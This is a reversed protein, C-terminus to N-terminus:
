FPAVHIPAPALGAQYREYMQIHASEIHRAFLEIFRFLSMVRAIPHRLVTFITCWAQWPAIMHFPVHGTLCALDGPRESLLRGIEGPTSEDISTLRVLRNQGFINRLTSIFSTGATKPIHLFMVPRDLKAPIVAPSPEVAEKALLTPWATM